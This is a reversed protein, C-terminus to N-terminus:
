VQSTPCRNAKMKGGSWSENVRCVEAKQIIVDKEERKENAIVAEDPKHVCLM